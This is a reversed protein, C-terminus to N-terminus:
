PAATIRLRPRLGRVPYECQRSTIRVTSGELAFLWAATDPGQCIGRVEQPAGAQLVFSIPEPLPREGAGEGEIGLVTVRARMPRAGGPLTVSQVPSGEDLFGGPVAEVVSTLATPASPAAPSPVASAAPVATVLPAPGSVSPTALPIAMSPPAAKLRSVEQKLVSVDHELNNVRLFSMGLLILLVLLLVIVVVARMM